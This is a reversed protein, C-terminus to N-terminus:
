RHPTVSPTSCRRVNRTVELFSTLNPREGAGQERDTITSSAGRIHEAPCVTQVKLSEPSMQLAHLEGSTGSDTGCDRGKLVLGTCGDRRDTQYAHQFMEQLGGGPVLRPAHGILLGSAPINDPSKHTKRWM